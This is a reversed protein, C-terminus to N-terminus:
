NRSLIENIIEKNSLDKHWWHNCNTSDEKSKRRQEALVFCELVIEFAQNLTTGKLKSLNYGRNRFPDKGKLLMITPTHTSKLNATKAALLVDNEVVQAQLALSWISKVISQRDAEEFLAYWDIVDNKSIIKQAYQNLLILEDISLYKM